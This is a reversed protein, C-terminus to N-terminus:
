LFLGSLYSFISDDNTARARADQSPWINCACSDVMYYVLYLKFYYYLLICILGLGM